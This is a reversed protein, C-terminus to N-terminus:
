RSISFSSKLAAEMMLACGLSSVCLSACSVSSSLASLDSFSLRLAFSAPLESPSAREFATSCLPTFIRAVFASAASTLAKLVSLSWSLSLSPSLTTMRPVTISPLTFRIAEAVSPATLFPAIDPLMILSVAGSIPPFPPPLGLIACAPPLSGEPRSFAM